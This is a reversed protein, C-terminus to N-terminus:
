ETYEFIPDCYKVREELWTKITDFGYERGKLTSWKELDRAYAEEPIMYEFRKFEKLIHTPNM